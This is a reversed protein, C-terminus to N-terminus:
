ELRDRNQTRFENRPPIYSTGLAPRPYKQARVGQVGELINTATFEDSGAVMQQFDQTAVVVQPLQSSLIRQIAEFGDEFSIGFRQRKEKFYLQAEEPFGELGEQWADWQWEGWDVSFMPSSKSSGSRAFADLFANAACYDVQGPGGGTIASMSSFFLMFDLPIDQLAEQLLLTGLIKPALVAAAREAEKLQILGLPPVAAAHFLGHITGFEAIIQDVASAVAERETIDATLILIEAGLAKWSKSKVFRTVLARKM